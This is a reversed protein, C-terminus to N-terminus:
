HSSFEKAIERQEKLMEVLIKLTTLPNALAVRFVTIDRGLNSPSPIRTRSVFSRGDSRQKKQIKKTLTDLETNIVKIKGLDGETLAANLEHAIKPPLFRYTLLNLQPHSVLEFDKTKEIEKAFDMALNIGHDILLEYGKGGIIKLASHVLVAMGPRSGELSYKGLDRSGKRLIYEAQQSISKAMIPNRFLVFGAGMPVYLQKHADVTVSDAKSIGNLLHRHKKSFLVPGGWAADVHFHCKEKISLDSLEELPDISGTETAGALGVIALPWYGSQKCAFIKKELDKLNIRHKTDTDVAIIGETGLGLIDAAKALSYHGRKSVFIKLGKLNREFLAGALGLVRIGQYKESKELLQNRAAWLATINAVTGGSTLNGLIQNRSQISENYFDDNKEFFLGHLMAIVQRELPTFAKSTEIKVLNQNLAVMIKSLPLMFYPIASTMHGVFTPSATHVSQSVVEKMLFYTQESAFIPDDPIKHESFSREITDPDLDGSVITENLFGSLDTSIKKEIKLLTSNNTEPTSFIRLLNEFSAEAKKTKQIYM